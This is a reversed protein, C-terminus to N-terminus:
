DRVNRGDMEEAALDRTLLLPDIRARSLRAAWHLHAGTARGTMGSRGLPTGRDVFAGERVRFAALHFYLTFLGLGHDLVITNGSFYLPSALVVRGSQAAVVPTGEPVRLDQGAHPSREEGNFFRRLGFSSGLPGEAPLVFAGRWLRRPSAAALIADLRAQERRIRVLSRADPEVYRRAVTLDERPFERARVALMETVRLPQTDRGRRDGAERRPAPADQDAPRLEVVLPYSGAPTALDVGVLARPRGDGGSFFGIQAGLFYATVRAPRAAPDDLVVVALGGPEVVPPRIELRPRNAAAAAAGSTPEVGVPGVRVLTEAGASAVQCAGAVFVLVLVVAASRAGGTVPCVVRKTHRVVRKMSVTGRMGPSRRGEDPM